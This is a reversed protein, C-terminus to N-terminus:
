HEDDTSPEEPPELLVPILSLVAPHTAGLAALMAIWSQVADRDWRRAARVAGTARETDGAIAAAIALHIAATGAEPDTRTVSPAITAVPDLVEAHDRATDAL